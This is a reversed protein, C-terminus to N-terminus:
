EVGQASVVAADEILLGFGRARFIKLADDLSLSEPLDEPAPLRPGGEGVGPPQVDAPALKPHTAPPAALAGEQSSQGRAVRAGGVVVLVTAIALLQRSSTM